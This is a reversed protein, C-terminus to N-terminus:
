EQPEEEGVLEPEVSEEEAGEAADLDEEEVEQEVKSEAITVLLEDPDTVLEMGEPLEISGAEFRDDVGKGELDVEFGEPIKDAPGKVTLESLNVNLVLRRTSVDEENLYTIPVGMTLVEDRRIAQFDVHLIEGNVPDNQIEKVIVAGEDDDLSVSIVSSKTNHKFMDVLVARKIKFPHASELRGGYIVGPIYGERRVANVKIGEERSQIPYVKKDPAM